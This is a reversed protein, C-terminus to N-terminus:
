AYLIRFVNVETLRTIDQQTVIAGNNKCVKSHTTQNVILAVSLLLSSAGEDAGGAPHRRFDHLLNDSVVLFRVDPAESDGSNFECDTHSLWM